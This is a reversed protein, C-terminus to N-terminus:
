KVKGLAELIWLGLEQSAATFRYLVTQPCQVVVGCDYAFNIAFGLLYHHSASEKKSQPKHLNFVNETM